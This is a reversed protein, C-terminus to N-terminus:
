KALLKGGSFLGLDLMVLITKLFSVHAKCNEPSSMFTKCMGNCPSKLSQQSM